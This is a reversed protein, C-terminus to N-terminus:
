SLRSRGEPLNRTRLNRGEGVDEKLAVIHSGVNHTAYNILERDTV